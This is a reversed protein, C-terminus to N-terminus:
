AGPGRRAAAKAIAEARDLQDLVKALKRLQIVGSWRRGCEADPCHVGEARTWSLAAEGAPAAGGRLISTHLQAENADVQLGAPRHRHYPCDRGLPRQGASLRLAARVRQRWSFLRRALVAAPLPCGHGVLGDYWRAVDALFGDFSPEPWHLGRRHLQRVVEHVAGAVEVSVQQLVQQVDLNVVARRPDATGARGSGDGAGGDREVAEGLRPWLVALEAAAVEVHAREDVLEEEGRGRGGTM